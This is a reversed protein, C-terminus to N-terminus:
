AAFARPRFWTQLMTGLSDDRGALPRGAGSLQAGTWTAGRVFRDADVDEGPLERRREGRVIQDSDVDERSDGRSV